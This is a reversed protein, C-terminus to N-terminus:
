RVRARKHVYTCQQQRQARSITVCMRPKLATWKCVCVCVWSWYLSNYPVCIRWAVCLLVGGCLFWWRWWLMIEPMRRFEMRCSATRGGCGCPAYIVDPKVTERTRLFRKFGPLYRLQQICTRLAILSSTLPPRGFHVVHHSGSIFVWECVRLCVCVCVTSLSMGFPVDHCGDPTYIRAYHISRIKALWIIWKRFYNFRYVINKHMKWQGHGSPFTNHIVGCM